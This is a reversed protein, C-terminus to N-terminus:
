YYNKPLDFIHEKISNWGYRYKTSIKRYNYPIVELKHDGYRYPYNFYDSFRFINKYERNCKKLFNM